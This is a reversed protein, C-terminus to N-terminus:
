VTQEASSETGEDSFTRGIAPAVGLTSFLGASVYAGTLQEPIAQYKLVPSARRYAAIGDLLHTSALADFEEGSIISRDLPPSRITKWIQVLESPKEFPLPRLFAANFFSFASITVGLGAVLTLVAVITPGPRRSLARYALRFDQLLGEAIM